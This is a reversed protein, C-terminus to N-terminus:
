GVDPLAAKLNEAVKDLFGETTLWGQQDGVLLALAEGPDLLVREVGIMGVRGVECAVPRRLVAGNRGLVARREIPLHDRGLHLRALTVRDIVVVVAPRPRLDDVAAPVTREPLRDDVLAEESAVLPGVDDQDAGLRVARLVLLLAAEKTGLDHAGEEGLRRALAAGDGEDAM